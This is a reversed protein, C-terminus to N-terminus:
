RDGGSGSAELADRIEQEGALVAQRTMDLAAARREHGSANPYRRRAEDVAALWVRRASFSLQVPTVEDSM